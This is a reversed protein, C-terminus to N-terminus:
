VGVRDMATLDGLVARACVFQDLFRVCIGCVELESAFGEVRSFECSKCPRCLAILDEAGM